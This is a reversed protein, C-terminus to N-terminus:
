YRAFVDDRRVNNKIHQAVLKLVMDGALHGYTDNVAKFHDLDIMVVALQREYRISRSLEREVSEIFYRKNYVQTLGDTTTLRYIEEHYAHEINNGSLFKFI